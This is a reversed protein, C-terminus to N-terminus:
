RTGGKGFHKLDICRNDCCGELIRIKDRRLNEVDNSYDTTASKIITKDRNKEREPQKKVKEILKFVIESNEVM